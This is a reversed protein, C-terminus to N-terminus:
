LWSDSLMMLGIFIALLLVITTLVSAGLVTWRRDADGRSLILRWGILGAHVPLLALLVISRWTWGAAGDDAGPAIGACVLAALSPTLLMLIDATSHLPSSDSASM